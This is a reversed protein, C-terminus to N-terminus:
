VVFNEVNTRLCIEKENMLDVIEQIERVNLEDFLKMVDIWISKSYPIKDISRYFIRKANMLNGHSVEFRLYMRWLIVNSKCIQNEFAKEFLTRIKHVNGQKMESYIAFLYLIPSPVRQILQNFYRSSRSTINLKLELEIFLSLGVPHGPFRLLFRQILSRVKANTFYKLEKEKKLVYIYKFYLLWLYQEYVDGLELKPILKNFTQIESRSTLSFISHCDQCPNKFDELVNEFVISADKPDGTLDELLAFCMVYELLSHRNEPSNEIEIMINKYINKANIIRNPDSETISKGDVCSCLINIAKSKNEYELEAYCRYMLTSGKKNELLNIKDMFIDYVKKAEEIQSNKILIQAYYNYLYINDSDKSLIDKAANKFSNVDRNSEFDLLTM